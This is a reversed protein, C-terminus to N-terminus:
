GAEWLYQALHENLDIVNSCLSGSVACHQAPRSLIDILKEHIQVADLHTRGAISITFGGRFGIKVFGDTVTTITFYDLNFFYGTTKDRYKIFFDIM